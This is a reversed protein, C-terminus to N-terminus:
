YVPKDQNVFKYHTVIGKLYNKWMTKRSIVKFNIKSGNFTIFKSNETLPFDKESYIKIWGKNTALAELSRPRIRYGDVIHRDYEPHIDYLHGHYWGNGDIYTKLAEYRKEKEELSENKFLSIWAKKVAKEKDTM